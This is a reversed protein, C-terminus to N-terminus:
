VFATGDKLGSFAKHYRTVEMISNMHFNEVYIIDPDSDDETYIKKNFLEAGNNTGLMTVADFDKDLDQSDAFVNDLEYYDVQVQKLYNEEDFDKKTVIRPRYNPDDKYAKVKELYKRREETKEEPEDGLQSEDGISVDWDNIDVDYTDTPAENFLGWGMANWVVNLKKADTEYEKFNKRVHLDDYPLGNAPNFLISKPYYLETGAAGIFIVYDGHMRYNRKIVTSSIGEFPTEPLRGESKSPESEKLPKSDLIQPSEEDDKEDMKEEKKETKFHDDIAKQIEGIDSSEVVIYEEQQERRADKKGRIYAADMIRPIDKRVARKTVQNGIVFGGALGAATGIGIGIWLSKKNM